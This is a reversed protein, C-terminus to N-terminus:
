KELKLKKPVLKLQAEWKTLSISALRQVVPEILDDRQM